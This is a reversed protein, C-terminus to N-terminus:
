ATSADPGPTSVDTFSESTSTTTAENSEPSSTPSSDAGGAPPVVDTAPRVVRVGYLHAPRFDALALDVGAARLSLWVWVRRIRMDLVAHPESVLQYLVWLLPSDKGLDAKVQDDVAVLPDFGLNDLWGPVDGFDLEEPGGYTARDEDAMRLRM